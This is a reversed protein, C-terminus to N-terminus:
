FSEALQTRHVPQSSAFAFSKDRTHETAHGPPTDGVTVRCAGPRRGSQSPMSHGPRPTAPRQTAWLARGAVPYGSRVQISKLGAEPRARVVPPAHHPTVSLDMVATLREVSVRGAEAGGGEPLAPLM